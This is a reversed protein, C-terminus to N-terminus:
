WSELVRVELYNHAKHFEIEIFTLRASNSSIWSLNKLQILVADHSWIMRDERRQNNVVNFSSQFSDM